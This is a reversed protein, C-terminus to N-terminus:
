CRCLSDDNDDDEEEEQLLGDVAWELGACDGLRYISRVLSCRDISLNNINATCGICRWYALRSEVRCNQWQQERWGGGTRVM